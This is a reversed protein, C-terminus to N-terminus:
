GDIVLSRGIVSKGSTFWRGEYFEGYTPLYTKPVIGVIQGKSVYVACNYLCNEFRLPMGVAVTGQFERSAEKIRLLGEIAGDLLVSQQFLDACTYGTISLEPFVLLGCDPRAKMIKLIHDTNYSPDGPKLSPVAASVKIWRNRM